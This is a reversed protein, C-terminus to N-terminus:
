MEDLDPWYRVVDQKVASSNWRSWPRACSRPRRELALKWITKNFNYCYIFWPRNILGNSLLCSQKTPGKLAVEKVGKGGTGGVFLEGMLLVFVYLFSRHIIILKNIIRKYEIKLPLKYSRITLNHPWHFHRSFPSWPFGWRRRLVFALSFRCYNIWLSIKDEIIIMHRWNTPLKQWYRGMSSRGM